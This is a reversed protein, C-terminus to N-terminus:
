GTSEVRDIPNRPRDRASGLIKLLKNSNSTINRRGVLGNNCENYCLLPCQLSLFANLLPEGSALASRNARNREVLVALNARFM